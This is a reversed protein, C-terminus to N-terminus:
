LEQQIASDVFSDLISGTLAPNESLLLRSNLLSDKEKQFSTAPQDHKQYLKM